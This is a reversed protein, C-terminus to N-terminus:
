FIGNLVARLLVIFWGEVQITDNPDDIGLLAMIDELGFAIGCSNGSFCLADGAALAKRVNELAVVDVDSVEPFRRLRSPM